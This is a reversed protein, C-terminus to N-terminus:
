VGEEGGMSGRQVGEAGGICGKQVKQIGRIAGMEEGMVGQAIVLVDIAGMELGKRSWGKGGGEM